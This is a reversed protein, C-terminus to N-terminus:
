MEQLIRAFIKGFIAYNKCFRTPNKLIRALFTNRAFKKSVISQKFFDQFYRALFVNAAFSRALFAM